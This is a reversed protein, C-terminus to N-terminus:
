DTKPELARGLRAVIQRWARQNMHKEDYFDAASLGLSAPSSFDFCEGGRRRLTECVTTRFSRFFARRELVAYLDPRFPPLVGVVRIRRERALDMLRELGALASADLRDTEPYWVNRGQFAREWEEASLEPEKRELYERPYVFSGDSAFGTRLLRADLGIGPGSPVALERLWPRGCRILAEYSELRWVLSWYGDLLARSVRNEYLLRKLRGRGGAKKQNSPYNPNFLWPDLELLVTRPVADEVVSKLIAAMGDVEGLMSASNAANYFRRRPIDEQRLQMVRSSGLALVEAKAAKAGLIKYENRANFFGQAYLLGQSRQLSIVREYSLSDGLRLFALEFFAVCCAGLLLSAGAFRIM